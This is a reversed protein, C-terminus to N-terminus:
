LSHGLGLKSPGNLKSRKGQSVSQSTLARACLNEGDLPREGRRERRRRRAARRHTSMSAAGDRLERRARGAGTATPSCDRRRM